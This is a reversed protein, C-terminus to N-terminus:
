RYDEINFERVTRIVIGLVHYHSAEFVPIYKGIGNVPMLGTETKKRLFLRGDPDCYLVIDHPVPVRKASLLLIDKPFYVPAFNGTTIKLGIDITNQITQPIESIDLYEFQCTDYFMGDKENGIPLIVPIKMTGLRSNKLVLHEELDLMFHISKISRPPLRCLRNTIDQIEKPYFNRDILEDVTCNLVDAIKVITSLRIDQSRGYIVSRLTDESLDAMVALASLTIRKEQLHARLKNRFDQLNM